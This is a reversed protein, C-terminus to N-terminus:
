DPKGSYIGSENANYATTATARFQWFYKVGTTLGTISARAVTPSQDFIAAISNILATKSTGYFFTGANITGDEIRDGHLTVNLGDPQSSTTGGRLIAPLKGDVKQDIWQKCLTNFWTRPSAECSALAALAAIDTADLPHAALVQAAHIASVVATLYGRQTVQGAAKPNAPIVYQRVVNIGKWPFFVMSDALKGSASFSMLPAKLKAM